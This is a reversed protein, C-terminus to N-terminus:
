KFLIIIIGIVYCGLLVLTDVVKAFVSGEKEIYNRILSFFAVSTIVTGLLDIPDLSRNLSIDYNSLDNNLVKLHMLFSTNNKFLQQTVSHQLFYDNIYVLEVILYSLTPSLSVVIPELITVSTANLLFYV